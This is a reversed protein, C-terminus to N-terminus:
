SGSYQKIIQLNFILSSAWQVWLLLISFCIQCEIIHARRDCQWKCNKAFVFMSYLLICKNPLVRSLVQLAINLDLVFSHKYNCDLISQMILNRLTFISRRNQTHCVIYETHPVFSLAVDVIDGFNTDSTIKLLKQLQKSYILVNMKSNFIDRSTM